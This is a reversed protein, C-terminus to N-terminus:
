PTSAHRIVQFRSTVLVVKAAQREQLGQRLHQEVSREIQAQSIQWTFNPKLTFMSWPSQQPIDQARFQLVLLYAMVAIAVSREVRWPDKPIQHQGLGTAEKLEKMVSSSTAAHLAPTSMAASCAHGGTAPASGPPNPGGRPYVAKGRKGCKKTIAGVFLFKRCHTM